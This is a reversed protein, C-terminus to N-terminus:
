ENPVEERIITIDTIKTGHITYGLWNQFDDYDDFEYWKHSEDIELRVNYIYKKMM